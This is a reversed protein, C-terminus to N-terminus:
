NLILGMCLEDSARYLSDSITTMSGAGYDFGNNERHANGTALWNGFLEFSWLLIFSSFKACVNIECVSKLAMM